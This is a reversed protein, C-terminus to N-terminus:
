LDYKDFMECIGKNFNTFKEWIGVFKEENWDSLKFIVDWWGWCRENMAHSYALKWGAEQVADEIEKWWSKVDAVLKDALQEEIGTRNRIYEDEVEQISTIADMRVKIATRLNKPIYFTACVHSGKTYLDTTVEGTKEDTQIYDTHEKVFNRLVPPVNKYEPDDFKQWVLVGNVYIDADETTIHVTTMKEQSEEIKVQTQNLSLEHNSAMVKKM